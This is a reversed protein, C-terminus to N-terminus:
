SAAIRSAPRPLQSDTSTGITRDTSSTAATRAARASVATSTPWSAGLSPMMTSTAAVAAFAAANAGATSKKEIPV